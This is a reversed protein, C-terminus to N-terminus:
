KNRENRKTFKLFRLIANRQFPFYSFYTFERQIFFQQVNLISGQLEARFSKESIKKKKISKARAKEQEGLM